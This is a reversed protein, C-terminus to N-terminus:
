LPRVPHGTGKDHPRPTVGGTGELFKDLNEQWIEMLRPLGISNLDEQFQDWEEDAGGETIWRALTKQVLAQIDPLMAQEENIQASPLMPRPWYMEPWQDSYTDYKVTGCMEAAEFIFMNLYMDDIDISTIFGPGITELDRWESLGLGEPTPAVGYTGDDNQLVRVGLPGEMTTLSNLPDYWYDIWRMVVEPHEAAATIPAIGRDWSFRYNAKPEYGPAKLAPLYEWDLWRSTDVSNQAWWNNFSFLQDQKFKAVYRSGDHSFVELDILGAEWLRHLYKATDRFGEQTPAYIAKGDEVMMLDRNDGSGEEVPLGHAWFFTSMGQSCSGFNFSLPIEDAEGNGNLDGANKVAMLLEYYEETTTPVEAGLEDLWPKNLYTLPCTTTWSGENLKFLAYINGDSATIFPRLTPKKDFIATVNPAFQDILDNMPLFAGAEGNSVVNFDSLPAGFTHPLDGAALMVRPLFAGAEGNSVVNFDSLPAGFTHPLDGAALMLNTREVWAEGPVAIWEVDIGTIERAQEPVMMESPDKVHSPWKQWVVSITVPEDVIPYGTANFGAADAAAEEAASAFAGATAALM